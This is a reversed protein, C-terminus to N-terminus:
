IKQHLLYFFYRRSDRFSVDSAPINMVNSLYWYPREYCASAIIYEWLDPSAERATEEVLKIKDRLICRRIATDATRDSKGGTHAHPMGDVIPSKVSIGSRLESIWEPYQECFGCLEKYRKKSIGYKAYSSTRKNM